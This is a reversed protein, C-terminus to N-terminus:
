KYIQKALDYMEDIRKFDEGTLQKANMVAEIEPSVKEAINECSSATRKRPTSRKCKTLSISTLWCGRRMRIRRM